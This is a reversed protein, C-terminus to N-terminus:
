PSNVAIVVKVDDRQRWTLLKESWTHDAKVPANV